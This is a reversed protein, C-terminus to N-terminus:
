HLAHLTFERMGYADLLSVKMGLQERCFRMWRDAATRYLERAGDMEPPLPKLFNVAFGRKSTRALESLTDQILQEWRAGAADLRVNFIGSAVSFDAIRPSHGGLHFATGQRTRWLQRAQEIMAQSLDIGLYDVKNGRHRRDLFGVLAGYGCGLDNLTFPRLPDCPRLLQVFRLEQTLQDPWAVGLPTAGHRLVQATYYRETQARLAAVDADGGQAAGGAETALVPM